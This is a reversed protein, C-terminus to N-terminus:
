QASQQASDAQVYRVQVLGSSYTKTDVLRLKEVPGDGAFLPRGAGLFVPIVSLIYETILGAVRFSSALKSGGVLWVRKHGLTSLHHILAAPTISTFQVEPPKSEFKRNTVVWCPKGNKAHFM